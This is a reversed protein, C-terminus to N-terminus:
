PKTKPKANWIHLSSTLIKITRQNTIAQRLGAYRSIEDLALKKITYNQVLRVQKLRPLHKRCDLWLLSGKHQSDPIPCSTDRNQEACRWRQLRDPWRWEDQGKGWGKARKVPLLEHQLQKSHGQWSWSQTHISGAPSAAHSIQGMDKPHISPGPGLVRRDWSVPVSMFCWSM